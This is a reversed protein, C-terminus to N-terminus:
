RRVEDLLQDVGLQRAWRDVYTNDVEEGLLNRVDSLQVESRSERAWLLKSLILDERSVIWLELDGVTVTRRRRFENVHYEDSKRPICDVKVVGARHIVNFSSENRRAEEIASGAVYYDPEFIRLLAEVNKQGLELVLDIDRTMRPMAYFSLALSGTLMYPIDARTLRVAMDRLVDLENPLEVPTVPSEHLDILPAPQSSLDFV